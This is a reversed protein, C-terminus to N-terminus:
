TGNSTKMRYFMAGGQEVMSFASTYGSVTEGTGLFLYGGPALLHTIRDFLERKLADAFYIMVNRLFLVDIPAIDGPEIKLNSQKFTVLKKVSDNLAWLNNEKQFHRLLYKQPLGRNISTNDYKGRTALSLSSQSIDTALIKVWNHCLADGGSAQFFDLVTLAISYPEQGTSCGASWINIQSRRKQDIGKQLEPLILERLARYPYQDRFWSTENTTIADVMLRCLTEAEPSNRAKRYFEGFSACQSERVLNSLRTEILYAKNDALFIGCEREILDRLLKFEIETIRITM